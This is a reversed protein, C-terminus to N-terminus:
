EGIPSRRSRDHATYLGQYAYVRLPMNSSHGDVREGDDGLRGATSDEVNQPARVRVDPIQDRRNLDALGGHRLVELHQPVRTEDANPGRCLLANVREVRPLEVGDVGPELRVSRQPRFVKVRQLTMQVTDVARSRLWRRVTAAISHPPTIFLSVYTGLGSESACTDAADVASPRVSSATSPGHVSTKTRCM